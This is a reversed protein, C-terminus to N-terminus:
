AGPTVDVTLTPMTGDSEKVAATLTVEFQAVEGTAANKIQVVETVRTTSITLGITGSAQTVSGDVAVGSVPAEFVMVAGTVELGKTFNTVAVVDTTTFKMNTLENGITYRAYRNSGGFHEHLERDINIEGDVIDLITAAPTTSIFSKPRGLQVFQAM